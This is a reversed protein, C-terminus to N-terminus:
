FGELQRWLQQLRRIMKKTTLQLKDSNYARLWLLPISPESLNENYRNFLLNLYLWLGVLLYALGMLWIRMSTQESTTFAQFNELVRYGTEIGWRSGFLSVLYEESLELNTVYSYFVFKETIQGSRKRKRFLVVQLVVVSPLDSRPVSSNPIRWYELETKKVWRYLKKLDTPNVGQSQAMQIITQRIIEIAKRVWSYNRMNFIYGIQYFDCLDIVEQSYFYGDAFIRKFPLWLQVSAFLKTILEIPSLSDTQRLPRFYVPLRYCPTILSATLYRNFYCTGNKPKSGVSLEHNSDGYFEQDNIDIALALIQNGHFHFNSVIEKLGQNIQQVIQDFELPNIRYQVTNASCGSFESCVDEISSKECCAQILRKFIDVPQWKSQSAYIWGETGDVYSVFFKNLKTHVIQKITASKLHKRM